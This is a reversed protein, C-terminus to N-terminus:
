DRKQFLLKMLCSVVYVNISNGLSKYMQKVSIDSPFSFNDPYLMINAVEKPTFYRLGLQKLLTLREKTDESESALQLIRYGESPEISLLVSGTGRAYRHYAKTFCCSNCNNEDVIDFVSWYKLLVHDPILYLELNGSEKELFYKLPYITLKNHCWEPCEFRYSSSNPMERLLQQSEIFSFREERLKAILYYRLRSNPIYFDQPTLLFEQYRYGSIEMTQILANRAESKEFGMVNELLIYFPKRQLENLITLIHLFSKSREDEIDKKLGVRTFPQCPPSMTIIDIKMNEIDSSTFSLINKQYHGQSGFNHKYIANVVPNIDIAAVIEYPIGAANLAFRMGGIGCYLELLRYREKNTSNEKQFINQHLCDDVAAM